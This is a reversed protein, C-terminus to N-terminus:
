SLHTSPAMLSLEPGDMQIRHNGTRLSPTHLRVSAMEELAKYLKQRSKRVSFFLEEPLFWVEALMFQGLLAPHWGSLVKRMQLCLVLQTQQLCLPLLVQLVQLISGGKCHSQAGCWPQTQGVLQGMGPQERPGTPSCSLHLVWCLSSSGPLTLSVAAAWSCGGRCPLGDCLLLLGQPCCSIASAHVSHAGCSLHCCLTVQGSPHCCVSSTLLCM